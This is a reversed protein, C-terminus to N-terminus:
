PTPGKRRNMIALCFKCTVDKDSFAINMGDDSAKNSRGCSTSVIMGGRRNMKNKAQHLMM